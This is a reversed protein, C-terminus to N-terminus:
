RVALGDLVWRADLYVGAAFMIAIRKDFARQQVFPPLEDFFVNM